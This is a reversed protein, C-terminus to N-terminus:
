TRSRTLGISIGMLMGFVIIGGITALFPVYQQAGLRFQEIFLRSPALKYGNYLLVAALLNVLPSHNLLDSFWLGCILLLVGHILISLTTQAGTSFKVLSRVIIATIQMAGLLGMSLNGFGQAFM